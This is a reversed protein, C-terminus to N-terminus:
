VLEFHAGDIFSEYNGGWVLKVGIESAAQMFCTAILALNDTDYNAKGGVYAYVDVANGGQHNSKKFVGDCNTVIDGTVVYDKMSANYERGIKFLQFQEEQTRIGQSVGFDPCHLKRNNAIELARHCVAQLDPKVSLIKTLSNKSYKYKRGM